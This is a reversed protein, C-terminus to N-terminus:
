AKRGFVLTAIGLVAGLGETAALLYASLVFSQHWAHQPVRGINDPSMVVFHNIVGFLLSALMSLAIIWAAASEFRTWILGAGVIPLALIIVFVFATQASTLPVPVESHAQGHWIAAALHLVVIAAIASRLWTRKRYNRV